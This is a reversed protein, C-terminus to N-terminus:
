AIGVCKISEQEVADSPDSSEIAESKKGNSRLVNYMSARSLKLAKAVETKTRFKQSAETIIREGMEDLFTKLGPFDPGVVDLPRTSMEHLTIAGRPPANVPRKLQLGPVSRWKSFAPRDNEDRAFVLLREVQQIVGRINGRVNGQVLGDTLSEVFDAPLDEYRVFLNARECCKPLLSRIIAPIDEKRQGLSPFTVDLTNIRAYLEELFTGKRIMTELDQNTACILKFNTVISRTGGVRRFTGEEIVKLLKQQLELSAAGIEDLFLTGKNALEFVGPKMQLAGTFAGKEHGFLESEILNKHIGGMHVEFFPRDIQKLYAQRFLHIARAATTKGTGTEGLLLVPSNTKAVARLRHRLNKAAISDGAIEIMETKTEGRDSRIKQLFLISMQIAKNIQEVIVPDPDNKKVYGFAGYRMAKVCDQIDDSSTIVLIQVQPQLELFEPIAEIGDCKEAGWALHKDLLMVQIPTSNMLERADALTSTTLVRSVGGNESLECLNRIHKRCPEEDDVILVTPGYDRDVPYEDYTFNEVRAAM